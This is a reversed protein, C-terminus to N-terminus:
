DGSIQLFIESIARVSIFQGTRPRLEGADPLGTMDRRLSTSNLWFRILELVSQNYIKSSLQSVVFDSKADNKNSLGKYLNVPVTRSQFLDIYFAAFHIAVCLWKPWRDKEKHSIMTENICNTYANKWKRFVDNENSEHVPSDEGFCLNIIKLETTSLGSTNRAIKDWRPLQAVSSWFFCETQFQIKDFTQETEPNHSKNSMSWTNYRLILHTSAHHLPIFLRKSWDPENPLEQSTEILPAYRQWWNNPFCGSNIIERQADQVLKHAMETNM